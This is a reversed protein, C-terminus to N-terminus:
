PEVPAWASTARPTSTTSTPLTRISTPNSSLKLFLDAYTRRGAVLYSGAKNPLPGEVSLRSSLLGVTGNGEFQNANGERQRVDLVSSLRGGYRAPIAGKYLKVDDIADGNFVSFFGFVHAPNYITSEDLLILNQDTTGGRVSFGTSFDSITTVGPLLTLTRIPDVEGLVVPVFRVTKLDLRATSMEPSGPDVDSSDRRGSVAIEELEFPVPTLRFDRTASADVVLTDVRPSYGLARVRVTHRGMPLTLVYFGDQNSTARVRCEASPARCEAGDASITAYRVVEGSAESRIYGSLRVPGAQAVVRGPLLLLGAM